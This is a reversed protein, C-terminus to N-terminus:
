GESVRLIYKVNSSTLKNKACGQAITKELQRSNPIEHEKIHDLEDGDDDVEMMPQKDTTIDDSHLKSALHGPLSPNKVAM